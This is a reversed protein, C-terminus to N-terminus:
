DFVVYDFGFSGSSTNTSCIQFSSSDRNVYYNLAAANAGVPTIIVHPTENFQQTFNITVFCGDGAPAGGGLNITVTGATDTGSISTTGGGGLKNGDVKGPTTGTPDIHRQLQFDGSLQFSQVNLQPTSIPGGFSAGGTVTLGKQATLQGQINTDGSITLKNGQIQDFSATGAVTLGPLSLAGGVKITGAVDLSDRILVKGTFIANAEVSLTQKPDGVSVDSSNLKKLEEETLAQTELTTPTAEKKNRQISVLTFGALLVVIFIFLLLYINLHTILERVHGGKGSKKKTGPKKDKNDPNKEGDPGASELAGTEPGELSNIEENNGTQNEM